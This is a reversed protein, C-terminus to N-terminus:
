QKSSRGLDEVWPWTVRDLIRAEDPKIIFADFDYEYGQVDPPVKRIHRLTLTGVVRVPKGNDHRRLLESGELYVLGGHLAVYPDLGKGSGWLLGEVAVRHGVIDKWRSSDQIPNEGRQETLKWEARDNTAEPKGAQSPSPTALLVISVILVISRWFSDM